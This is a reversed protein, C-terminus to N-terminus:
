HIKHHLFKEFAIQLGEFDLPKELRINADIQNRLWTLQRKAYNKTHQVAKQIAEEKTLIGDIYAALDIYGTAKRIAADDDVRGAAIEASLWRAEELAGSELLDDFRHECRQYILERPLQIISTFFRLHTPPNIKPKKHWEALSIGTQELVEWARIVRQTNQPDLKAAMEPDRMQLKKFLAATGIEKQLINAQQRVTPDADPIPSLGELLAKIYFGTGGVIIPLKNQQHAAQIEKLALDRWSVATVKENINFDGYLKHPAANQEEASPHATLVHLADYMQISDANIIVGDYHQACKIALM